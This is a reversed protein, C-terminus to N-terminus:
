RPSAAPRTPPSRAARSEARTTRRSPPVAPAPPARPTRADRCILVHHRRILSSVADPGTRQCRLRRASTGFSNPNSNLPMSFWVPCRAAARRSRGTRSARCSPLRRFRVLIAVPKEQGRLELPLALVPRPLLAFQAAIEPPVALQPDIHVQEHTAPLLHRPFVDGKTYQPRSSNSRHSPSFGIVTQHRSSRATGRSNHASSPTGPLQRSETSDLQGMEGNRAPVSASLNRVVPISRPSSRTVAADQTSRSEFRPADNM